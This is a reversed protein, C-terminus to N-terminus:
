RVFRHVQSLLVIHKIILKNKSVIYQAYMVIKCDLLLMSFLSKKQWVKRVDGEMTLNPATVSSDEGAKRSVCETTSVLTQIASAQSILLM